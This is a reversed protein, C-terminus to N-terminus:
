LQRAGFTDCADVSGQDYGVRFWRMRQESSGHTFSDPVVYGQAERQLRDDGIAEAATLAEDIDGPELLDQNDRAWLGAFCDAQLEMRVQLANGEARSARAQARRVQDAIGLVTQVHHGVEHAVVYAAAFDGPAGFRQSLEQFFSTDLYIRNDAPCYFPGTASQAAGCGSQGLGSYFVLRPEPYDQGAQQFQANWTDETEALVTCVFANTESRECISGSTAVGPADTAVQGPYSAQPAGVPVTSGGILQLPNVGLLLAIVAVIILGGCGLGRGGIPLGIGGGLPFGGGGGGGLGTQDEVNSSMRRGRWRM